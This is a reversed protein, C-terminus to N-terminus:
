KHKTQAASKPNWEHKSNNQQSIGASNTAILLKPYHPTTRRCIVVGVKGHANTERLQVLHAPAQWCVCAGLQGCAVSSHSCHAPSCVWGGSSTHILTSKAVPTNSENTRTNNNHSACADRAAVESTNCRRRRSGPAYGDNCAKTTNCAVMILKDACALLFAMNWALTAIPIM